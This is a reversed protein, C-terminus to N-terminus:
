NLVDKYEQELMQIQGQVERVKQEFQVQLDKLEQALLKRLKLYEGKRAAKQKLAELKKELVKIEDEEISIDLPKTSSTYSKPSNDGSVPSISSSGSAGNNKDIPRILAICKQLDLGRDKAEDVFKKYSKINEWNGNEDTANRCLSKDNIIKLQADVQNVNQYGARAKRAQECNFTCPAETTKSSSEQPNQKISSVTKTPTATKTVDLATAFFEVTKRRSDEAFKRSAKRYVTGGKGLHAHEDYFSITQGIQDNKDWGHTADPYGELSILNQSEKPLMKVFEPCTEPKDYDDKGGYFLKVPYGTLQDYDGATKQFQIHGWCVPYFPAFAKFGRGNSVGFAAHMRESAMRLSMVGGWSWGAVGIKDADIEPRSKLYELAGFAHSMTLDTRRPRKNRAFMDIELTAIGAANLAKAYYEGQSAKYGASSHLLVVAPFKGNGNNPLRLEGRVNSVMPFRKQLSKGGKFRVKEIFLGDKSKSHDDAFAASGLPVTFTMFAVILFLRIRRLM